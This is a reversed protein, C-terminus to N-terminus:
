ELVEAELGEVKSSELRSGNSPYLVTTEGVISSNLCIRGNGIDSVAYISLNANYEKPETKVWKEPIPPFGVGKALWAPTVKLEEGEVDIKEIDGRFLYGEGSNQIEIQGGVYQKAIEQTLQM